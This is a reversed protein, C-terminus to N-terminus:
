IHYCPLVYVFLTVAETFAPIAVAQLDFHTSDSLSIFCLGYGAGGCKMQGLQQGVISM